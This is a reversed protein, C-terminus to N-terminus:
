RRRRLLFYLLTSTSFIGVYTGVKWYNLTWPTNKIVKKDDVEVAKKLDVLDSKEKISTKQCYAELKKLSEPMKIKIVSDIAAQPVWGNPNGDAIQILQCQEKTGKIVMVGALGSTMRVTGSKKEQILDGQENDISKTVNVVRNEDLRELRSFLVMDRSSVPFMALTKLYTIRENENLIKRVSSEECTTDWLLREKPNAIVDYLQIYDCKMTAVTKFCLTITKHKFVKIWDSQMILVWDDSEMRNTFKKIMENSELVPESTPPKILKTDKSKLVDRRYFLSGLLLQALLYHVLDLRWTSFVSLLSLLISSVLLNKTSTSM